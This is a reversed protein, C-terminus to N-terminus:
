NSIKKVLRYFFTATWQKFITEGLRRSRRAYVIDYGQRWKEIMKDILEPPDQLDADITVIVDGKVHDMGATIAMQHGFNRSFSIIHINSNKQREEKLIQLTHDTSGDDIFLIEYRSAAKQAATTLRKVSERILPEENYVPVIVSLLYNDQM